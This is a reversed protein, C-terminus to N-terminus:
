LNFFELSALNTNRRNNRWRAAFLYPRDLFLSELRILRHLAPNVRDASFNSLSCAKGTMSFHSSPNTGIATNMRRLDPLEFIIFDKEDLRIMEIM